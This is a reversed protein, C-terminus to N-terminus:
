PLRAETPEGAGPTPAYWTLRLSAQLVDLEAEGAPDIELEDIGALGRSAYLGDLFAALEEYRGRLRVRYACTVIPDARPTQGLTELGALLVGSRRAVASLEAPRAAEGHATSKWRELAAELEGLGAAHQVAAPRERLARERQDIEAQLARVRARGGRLWAISGGVLLGVALALGASWAFSALLDREVRARM